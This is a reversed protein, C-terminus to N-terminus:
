TGSIDMSAVAMSTSQYQALNRQWFSGKCWNRRDSTSSSQTRLSTDTIRGPWERVEVVEELVALSWM